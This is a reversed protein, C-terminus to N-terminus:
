GFFKKAHQYLDLDHTQAPVGQWLLIHIKDPPREISTNQKRCMPPSSEGIDLVVYRIPRKRFWLKGSFFTKKLLNIKAQNRKLMSLQTM